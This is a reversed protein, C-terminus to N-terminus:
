IARLVDYRFYETVIEGVAAALCFALLFVAVRGRGRSPRDALPVRIDLDDDDWEARPTADQRPLGAMVADSERQGTDPPGPQVHEMAPAPIPGTCQPCVAPTGPEPAPISGHCHPCIRETPM